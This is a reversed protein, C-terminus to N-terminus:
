IRSALIRHMEERDLVAPNNKNGSLDLIRDIDAPEVGFRGLRPIGTEDAMRELEAIFHDQRADPPANEAAGLWRGLRAYKALAVSNEGTRRLRNLTIRNAPAILTGCITGHPIAFLGGIASAFGHIVGLGAQTLVIGSLMAAYAMDSRAELDDGHECVRRLSRSAARIGDAALADSMPSAKTSLYAEVLQSFADMGCALTLERPLTLTLAPDVLAIDPIFRPHRLSRKFGGSGIRSLVANATTESGTGSTTPVAICPLRRGSPTEQGVGELFREVTGGEVLMVALAKGADLVSGGGIAVVVDVAATEYHSAITDITEPSPEGTISVQDLLCGSQLLNDALERWHGSRAFSRGGVVLLPHRGYGTILHPLENFRGAGFRIEPLPSFSFTSPMTPPSPSPCGTAANERFGM